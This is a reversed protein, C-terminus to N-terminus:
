AGVGGGDPPFGVNGSTNFRTNLGGGSIPLRQLVDGVSTLGSKEIDDSTLTILPAAQNLPDTRIRSGTVVVTEPEEQAQAYAPLLGLALTAALFLSAPSRPRCQRSEFSM